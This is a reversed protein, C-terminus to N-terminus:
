PGVWMQTCQRVLSWRAVQGREGFAVVLMYDGLRGDTHISAVPRLREGDIALEWMSVRDDHFQRSPAGLEQMVERLTARPSQLFALPPLRGDPDDDRLAWPTGCAAALLGFLAPLVPWRHWRM